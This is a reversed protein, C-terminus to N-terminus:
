GSPLRRLSLWRRNLRSSGLIYTTHALQSSIPFALVVGGDNFLLLLRQQLASLTHLSYGTSQWNSPLALVFLSISKDPGISAAFIIRLEDNWLFVAVTDNELLYAPMCAPLCATLSEVVFGVEM